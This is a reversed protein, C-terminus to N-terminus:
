KAVGSRLTERQAFDGATCLRRVKLETKFFNELTMLPEKFERDFLDRFNKAPNEVRNEFRNGNKGLLKKNITSLQSANELQITIKTPM